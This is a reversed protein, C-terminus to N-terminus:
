HSARIMLSMGFLTIAHCDSSPEITDVAPETFKSLAGRPVMTRTCKWYLGGAPLTPAATAHSNPSSGLMWTRSSRRRNLSTISPRCYRENTIRSEHNMIPGTDRRHGLD